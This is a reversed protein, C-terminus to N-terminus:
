WQGWLFGDELDSVVDKLAEVEESTAYVEPIADLIRKDEKSM